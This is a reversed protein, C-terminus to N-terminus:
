CDEFGNSEHQNRLELADPDNNRVLSKKLEFFSDMRSKSKVTRARPMKRAWELEKKYLM